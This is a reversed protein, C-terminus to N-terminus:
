EATFHYALAPASSHRLSRQVPVKGQPSLSGDSVDPLCSSCWFVSALETPHIGQGATFPDRTMTCCAERRPPPYVLALASSVRLSRQICVKGQWSLPPIEPCCTSLLRLLLEYAGSSPYRVRRDFNVFAPASYARLSRRISVKRPM